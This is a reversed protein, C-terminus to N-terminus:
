YGVRTIERVSRDICNANPFTERHLYDTSIRTWISWALLMGECCDGPELEMKRIRHNLVSEYPFKRGSETVYAKQHPTYLRPDVLWTFNKDRWPPFGKLDEVKLRVLSTNKIKLDLFYETSARFDLAETREPNCVEVVLDPALSDHDEGPVPCGVALLRRIRAEEVPLNRNKMVGGSIVHMVYVFHM